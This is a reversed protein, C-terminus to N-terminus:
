APIGPEPATSAATAAALLNSIDSRISNEPAFAVKASPFSIARESAPKCNYIRMGEQLGTVFYLRASPTVGRQGSEDVHAVEWAVDSGSRLDKPFFALGLKTDSIPERLDPSRRTLLQTGKLPMSRGISIDSGAFQRNPDLAIIFQRKL